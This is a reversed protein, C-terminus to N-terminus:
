CFYCRPAGIKKGDRRALGKATENFDSRVGCYITSGATNGLFGHGGKAEIVKQAIRHAQVFGSAIKSIPLGHWLDDAVEWIENEKLCHLGGQERALSCHRRSMNPFVSLDLVNMYSM